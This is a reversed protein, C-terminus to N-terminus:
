PLDPSGWRGVIRCAVEAAPHRAAVFRASAETAVTTLRGDAWVIAWEVDPQRQQPFSPQLTRARSSNPGCGCPGLVDREVLLAEFASMDIQQHQSASPRRQDDRSASADSSNQNSTEEAV